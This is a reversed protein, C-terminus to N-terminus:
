TADKYICNQVSEEEAQPHTLRLLCITVMRSRYFVDALLFSSKELNKFVYRNDKQFTVVEAEEYDLFLRSFRGAM